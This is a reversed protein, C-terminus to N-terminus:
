DSVLHTETSRGPLSRVGSLQMTQIVCPELVDEPRHLSSQHPFPIHVLIEPLLSTHLQVNHQHEEQDSSDPLSDSTTVPLLELHLPVKVDM